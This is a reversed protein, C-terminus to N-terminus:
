ASSTSLVQTQPSSKRLLDKVRQGPGSAGELGCSKGEIEAHLDLASKMEDTENCSEQCGCGERGGRLKGVRRLSRGFGGSHGVPRKHHHIGRHAADGALEVFLLRRVRDGVEDGEGLAGPIPGIGGRFLDHVVLAVVVVGRKMAHNGLEHNLAAIGGARPHAIGAVREIVGPRSAM